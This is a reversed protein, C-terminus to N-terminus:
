FQINTGANDLLDVVSIFCFFELLSPDIICITFVVYIFFAQEM